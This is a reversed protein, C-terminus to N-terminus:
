EPTRLIEGACALTEAFDVFVAAVAFTCTKSCQTAQNFCRITAARDQQPMETFVWRFLAAIAVIAEVSRCRAIHGLQRLFEEGSDITCTLAKPHGM